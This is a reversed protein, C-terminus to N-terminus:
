GNRGRQVPMPLCGTIGMDEKMQMQYLEADQRYQKTIAGWCYSCLRGAGCRVYYAFWKRGDNAYTRESDNQIRIRKERIHATRWLREGRRRDKEM